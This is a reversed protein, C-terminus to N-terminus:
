MPAAWSKDTVYAQPWIGANNILVDLTKFESLVKCFLEEVDDPKSVDAPAAIAEIRYRAKLQDALAQATDISKLCNIVLHAGEAALVECTVRGLGRSGGTVLAVKDTLHFNM